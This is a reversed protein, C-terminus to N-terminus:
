KYVAFNSQNCQTLDDLNLWTRLEDLSSELWFKSILYKLQTVINLSLIWISNFHQFRTNVQIRSEVRWFM